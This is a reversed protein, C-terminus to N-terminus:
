SLLSAQFSSNLTLMNVTLLLTSTTHHITRKNGSRVLLALGETIVSELARRDSSGLNNNLERLFVDMTTAAAVVGIMAFM